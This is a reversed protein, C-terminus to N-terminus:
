RGTSDLSQSAVVAYKEGLRANRGFDGGVALKKAGMECIDVTGIRIEKAWLFPYQPQTPTSKSKSTSTSPSPPGQVRPVTRAENSYYDKYRGLLGQANFEFRQPMHRGKNASNSSGHRPKPRGRVYITNVITAHLLLPRSKSQRALAATYLDPLLEAKKSVGTSRSQTHNQKDDDAEAKEAPKKQMKNKEKENQKQKAKPEGVLFGAEVFKDRLMLCFPYLRGTPDVPSAHLVTAAKANPLAHLSELSITLQHQSQNVRHKPTSTPDQRTNRNEKQLAVREAEHMLNVLDLSRLFSIAENLREESPLSMVGLTLHLTGLPRVAGEPILPQSSESGHDTSSQDRKQLLEAVPVPPNDKKFVAISAELQPTSSINILPLCLFHTLPPRKEQTQPGNQRRGTM